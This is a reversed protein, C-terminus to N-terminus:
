KIRFQESGSNPLYMYSLDMVTSTSATTLKPVLSFQYSTDHVRFDPEEPAPSMCAYTCYIM